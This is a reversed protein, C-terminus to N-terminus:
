GLLTKEFWNRIDERIAQLEKIGSACPDHSVNEYEVYRLREPLDAYVPKLMRYLLRSSEIDVWDDNFGHLLLVSKPYLAKAKTRLNLKELLALREKNKQIQELKLYNTDGPIAFGAISTIRNEEIASLFTALGGISWGCIGITEIPCDGKLELLDDIISPIEKSMGLISPAYFETLRDKRYRERLDGSMREGHLPLDIYARLIPLDELPLWKFAWRKDYSVGGGPLIILISKPRTTEPFTVIAPAKRNGLGMVKQKNKL